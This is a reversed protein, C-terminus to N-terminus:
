AGGARRRIWRTGRGRSPGSPDKEITGDARMQRLIETVERSSAGTGAVIMANTLAAGDALQETIWREVSVTAPETTVSSGAVERARNTLAWQTGDGDVTRVVGERALFRLHRVADPQAAQMASAAERDSLMPRDVLLRVAVLTNVDDIVEQGFESRLAELGRIFATDPPEVYLTVDVTFEDTEVRPVGRGAMIMAAWMRDFGRSTQEVLGLAGMARMLLPNRPRSPTSLLRDPRVQPPLGGPSSIRVAVPSVDIEVASTATWDRHVLANTVAEDVAPAPVSPASAEQGGGLDVQAVPTSTRRTVAEVVTTSALVLPDSFATTVPEGAPTSRVHLRVAPRLRHPRALLIEAAVTLRGDDCFLDLMHLLGEATGPAPSRDGKARWQREILARAQAVAAPDLDEVGIRSATATHDPNRRRYELERREHGTLPECRNGVRRRASGNTREYVDLGRPVRIVVLRTGHVFTEQAEVRLSPRTKLFIKPVLDDGSRETGTFADPGGTRDNVGVVIFGAEAPGNAFCVSADLLVDVMKADPNGAGHHVPDEKFDLWECELADATEGRWIQELADSLPKPLLGNCPDTM